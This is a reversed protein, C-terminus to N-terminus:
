NFALALLTAYSIIALVIAFGALWTGFNYDSKEKRFALNNIEGVNNKNM